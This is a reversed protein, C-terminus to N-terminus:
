QKKVKWEMVTGILEYTKKTLEISHTWGFFTRFQIIALEDDDSSLGRSIKTTEANM